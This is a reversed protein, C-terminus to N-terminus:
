KNNSQVYGDPNAKRWKWASEIVDKINIHKANWGLDNLIKNANARLVPPDGSRRSGVQVKFDNGTVEKCADVINKVSYGKGIGINYFKGAGNSLSKMVAIHADVLDEIHVYDRICTGDPTQYDNGYVTVAELKGLAADLCIPILHTEPQHHEGLRSQVDCGAVNFYRLAAFAFDEGNAQAAILQDRLIREVMLKSWGYPNIPEQACDETIPINEQAPIGYTAATSSFVIRRVGAQRMSEFLCIANATNNQYYRIPQEVSEGVYTLAAFHMVVDISRTNLLEAIASVDGLNMEAFHLEGIKRLADIAGIQGRSLDDVITVDCGDELLKMAAHSGIYGAGGTVLVNM